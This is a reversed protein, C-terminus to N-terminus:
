LNNAVWEMEFFLDEFDQENRIKRKGAKISIITKMFKNIRRVKHKTIRPDKATIMDVVNETTIKQGSLLSNLKRELRRYLLTLAKDYKSKEKYWEIKQAFFSSTRFRAQAEKKEEQEAKKKEEKDKQKPLYKRLTYVALLPYIWATIPNTSLHVVYQIIFGFIGASTLDRTEEPRIHAEDFVIIWDDDGHSLWEIINLALQQNDYGDENILENNFLSADASVFIRADDAEKAMFVAQPYIGLPLKTIEDPFDAVDEIVGTLDVNDDEYDYVGDDNKDVYSYTSSYGVVDWGSFELFPGGLAASSQSLLVRNVGSSIPHDSFTEIIPFTPDKKGNKELCSYNDRLIGEPFITLPVKDKIDKNLLNALYIEYLLNETSGHDHAIFLSNGDEFFKMFYPIENMPNYYQNTGLLVLVIKKDVRDTTSLSSQINYTEYGEDELLTKFDSAGNWDDNYVSFNQDNKGQDIIPALLPIFSFIFVILFLAQKYISGARIKKRSKVERTKQATVNRIFILFRLGLFAAGVYCLLPIYNVYTPLEGPNSEQFENFFITIGIGYLILYVTFFTFIIVKSINISKESSKGGKVKVM